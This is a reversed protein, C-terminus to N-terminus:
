CCWFPPRPRKSSPANRATQVPLVTAPSSFGGPTDAIFAVMGIMLLPATEGLAQAMGLITGTLVGPMALPLVHHFVVQVPSAGLGQAAQRISPPVAKLAARTAIIITPLTMLALTFGGVVPASRPMGFFGIFVALGLLGFVISPVAALNNINVEILDTWRNQPAFEELYIATTVGIPFSLMFCIFLTLASGVTAGWIGALEPSRSDAGTFFRVNFARDVADKADLADYWGLVRDDVRRQDEPLDRDIWGKDLMDIDGSATLWITQTTGILEPNELVFDRLEFRADRSFVGLSKLIDRRQTAGFNDRVINTMLGTYNANGIVRLDRNGEPDLLAPDLNVEVAIQTQTFAGLGQGALTGVLVVLMTIALLVAGLGYAKFRRESRRRAKLRAAAAAGAHPSERRILPANTQNMTSDTM